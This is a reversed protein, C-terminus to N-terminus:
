AAGRRPLLGLGLPSLVPASRRRFRGDFFAALGVYLRRDAAIRGLVEPLDEANVDERISGPPALAVLAKGSGKAAVMWMATMPEEGSPVVSKDVTRLHVRVLLGDAVDVEILPALPWEGLRVQGPTVARCGMTTLGRRVSDFYGVDPAQVLIMPTAGGQPFVYTLWLADTM